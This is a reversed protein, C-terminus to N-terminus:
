RASAYAKQEGVMKRAKLETFSVGDSVKATIDEDNLIRYNVGDEGEVQLGGYKAFAVRDGVKAFPGAYGKTRREVPKWVGDVLQEIVETSHQWADPGVAILIGTSQANMYKDRVADPIYITSEEVTEQIADPLVVVRDGSPYIGSNNLSLM